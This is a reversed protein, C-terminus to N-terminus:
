ILFKGLHYIVVNKYNQYYLISYVSVVVIEMRVKTEKLVKPVWPDLVDLPDEAVMLVKTALV